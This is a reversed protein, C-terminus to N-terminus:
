GGPHILRELQLKWTSVTIKGTGRAGQPSISVSGRGEFSLCTRNNIERGVGLFSLCAPPPSSPCHSGLGLGPHGLPKLSLPRRNLLSAQIRGIVQSFNCLWHTSPLAQKEHKWMWDDEPEVKERGKPKDSLSVSAHPHLIIQWSGGLLTHCLQAPLRHQGRSVRRGPLHVQGGPIKGWAGVQRGRIGCAGVWGQGEVAQLIFVRRNGLRRQAVPAASGSQWSTRDCAETPSTVRATPVPTQFGEPASLHGVDHRQTFQFATGERLLCPGHLAKPRALPGLTLKQTGNAGRAAGRVQWARHRSCHVGACAETAGGKRLGALGGSGVWLRRCLLVKMSFRFSAKGEEGEVQCISPFSFSKRLCSDCSHKGLSPLLVQSRAGSPLSDPRPLHFYLFCNCSSPCSRVLGPQGGLGAGLMLPNTQGVPGQTQHSRHLLYPRTRSFPSLLHAPLTRDPQGLIVGM